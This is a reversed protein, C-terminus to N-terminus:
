TRSTVQHMCLRALRCLASRSPRDPCVRGDFTGFVISGDRLLAAGGEIRSKADYRWLETGAACTRRGGARNVGCPMTDLPM